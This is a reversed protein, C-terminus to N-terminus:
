LSEVKRRLVVWGLAFIAVCWAALVGLSGTVEGWGGGYNTVEVLGQVLPYSPLIQVVPSATGPFIAAFAPIMLPIMLAMGIFLTGMFDRGASGAVMALGAVMVAGFLMLVVILVPESAFSRTAALLVIAQTLGTIAGTIGKAVLVDGTRAPTVLLATVTRSQIETAILSAMVFGEMLLVMFAFLPRFSERPTIQNGARDEGLVEINALAPAEGPAVVGGIVGAMALRVDDPVAADVYISVTVPRGAAVDGAFGEPFAIGIELAVRDFGDPADGGVVVAGTDSRYLDADGRIVAELDEASDVPVFELGPFGIGAVPIGLGTVDGTVGVTLTEDVDDPLVWFLAIFIVLGFITLGIWVADRSYAALDKRVITAVISARSVPSGGPRNM